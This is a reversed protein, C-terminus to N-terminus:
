DWELASFLSEVLGFSRGKVVGPAGGMVMNLSPLRWEDTVRWRRCIFLKVEADWKGDTVPEQRFYHAFSDFFSEELNLSRSKWAIIIEPGFVDTDVPGSPDTVELLTRLLPPYLHPFYVLDCLIIHTFPGYKALHSADEGWALPQAVVNAHEAQQSGEGETAWTDISQQCLPVVNPLDTLVVTDEARLRAALHLSALAQGSGLELVRHPGLTTFLTCAPDGAGGPTLYELLPGSAEWVRGAIGYRGIAEAQNHADAGDTAATGLLHLPHINLNAPFNPDASPAVM